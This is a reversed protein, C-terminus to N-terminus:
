NSVLIPQLLMGFADAATVNIISAYSHRDSSFEKWRECTSESVLCVLEIEVVLILNQM